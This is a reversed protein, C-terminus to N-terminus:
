CVDSFSTSRVHGRCIGTVDANDAPGSVHAQGQRQSEGALAKANDDAVYVFCGELQDAAPPHREGFRAGLPQEVPHERFTPQTCRGIRRGHGVRGGHDHGDARGRVLQRFRNERCEFFERVVHQWVQGVILKDYETGRDGRTGRVPKVVVQPGVASVRLDGKAGFADDLALGNFLDLHEGLDDAAGGPVRFPFGGSEEPLDRWPDNVQGGDFGFERFQEAIHVPINM